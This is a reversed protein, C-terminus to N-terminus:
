RWMANHYGSVVGLIRVKGVRNTSHYIAYRIADISHDSCKPDPKNEFNGAMDQKFIYGAQENIIDKSSELVYVQQKRVYDITHELYDQGNRKGKYVERIMSKLNSAKLAQVIAHPQNDSHILCSHDLDMRQLKTVLADSTTFSEYLLEKVYCKLTFETKIIRVEVMATIGALGLDLGYCKQDYQVPLAKIYKWGPFILGTSDGYQALAHIRYESPNTIKWYAIQKDVWRDRFQNDTYISKILTGHKDSCLHDECYTKTWHMINDPNWDGFVAVESRVQLNDFVKQEVWENLENCFLVKRKMSKVKRFDDMGIVELNRSGVRFVLDVKNLAVYPWLDLVSLIEELDRLIGKKAQPLEKRVLSITGSTFRKKISIRGTFLAVVMLVLLAHTKGSRTGGRHFLFKGRSYLSRIFLTTCEYRITGEEGKGPNYLGAIMPAHFVVTHVEPLHQLNNYSTLNELDMYKSEVQLFFKVNQDTGLSALDGKQIDHIIRLNETRSRKM